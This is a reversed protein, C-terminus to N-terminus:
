LKEKGTPYFPFAQRDFVRPRALVTVLSGGDPVMGNPDVSRFKLVDGDVDMIRVEGTKVKELWKIAEARDMDYRQKHLDEASALNSATLADSHKQVLAPLTSPSDGNTEKFELPLLYGSTYLYSNIEEMAAKAAKELAADERILGDVEDDGYALELSRRNTYYKM